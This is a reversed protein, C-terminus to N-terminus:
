LEVVPRIAAKQEPLKIAIDVAVESDLCANALLRYVEKVSEEKMGARYAKILDHTLCSTAYHIEDLLGKVRKEAQLVAQPKPKTPNITQPEM